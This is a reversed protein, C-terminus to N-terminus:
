LQGKEFMSYFGHSGIILHDVLDLDVMGLSHRLKPTFELDDASPAPNGSPHNHYVVVASARDLLAHRVIDRTSVLANNITGVFIERELLMRHRSDLFVAGLREQAQHGYKGVLKAGLVKADFAPPEEPEGSTMRRSIEFAATVRAAKAPGVGPIDILQAIERARLATMGDALLERGLQIANKGPVGSGLLIAMLEANSLTEPGHLLLRERPRDDLPLDAIVDTPALARQSDTLCRHHLRHRSQYAISALTRSRIPRTPHLSENLNSNM